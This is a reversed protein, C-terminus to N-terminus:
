NPRLREVREWDVLQALGSVAPLTVRGGTVPLPDITIRDAHMLYVTTEAPLWGVPDTLHKAVGLAALSGLTSEMTLGVHVACGSRRAVGSIAFSESIGIRGLKLAIARAGLECFLEAERLSPCPADLVIPLASQQQLRAFAANPRIPCPDEVAVIGEAALMELYRPAEEVPYHGNCDVFFRVDAGVANRIARFGERDVDIGQGGKLKLTTFGHRAVMEAAEEAMRAPSQRTLTWCVEPREEGYETWFPVGGSANALDRLAADVLAKASRNEAYAAARKRFAQPEALDIDTLIPVFLEELAVQLSRFTVGFWAPNVHVEGVGVTGDDATLRLLMFAVDSVTQTAWAVTRQYPIRVPHLSWSALRKPM